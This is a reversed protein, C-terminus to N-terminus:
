IALHQESNQLPLLMVNQKEIEAHEGSVFDEPQFALGKIIKFLEREHVNIVMKM